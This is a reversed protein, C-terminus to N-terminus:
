VSKYFYNYNYILFCLTLYFSVADMHNKNNFDFNSIYSQLEELIDKHKAMDTALILKVMGNRIERYVEEPLNSFINCQPNSLIQFAVACHHNEL